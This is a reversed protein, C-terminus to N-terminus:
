VIGGMGKKGMSVGIKKLFAALLDAGLMAFIIDNDLELRTNV